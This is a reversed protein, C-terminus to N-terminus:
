RVLTFRRTVAEAGSALRVSYVGATWRVRRPAGRARGAAAHRGGARRGGPGARRVGRGAGSRERDARQVAGDGRGARPQAVSGLAGPGVADGRAGSPAGGGALLAAWAADDAIGWVASTEVGEIFVEADAKSVAAGSALTPLPAEKEFTFADDNTVEGPFTGARGTVTYIGSPAGRNARGRFRRQVAGGPGLRVVAQARIDEPGTPPQVSVWVDQEVPADTENVIRVSFALSGGSPGLVIPAEEPTLTVTLGQPPTSEDALALVFLGARMDNVVITGSPFYPYNSWQGATGAADSEPWTDFFAIEPLSGEAILTADLVRLGSRYNSQFVKGDHVYLNHDSAETTGDQIFDFSPNDLDIMDFVM